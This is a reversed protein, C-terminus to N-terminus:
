LISNCGSFHPASADESVACSTKMSVRISSGDAVGKQIVTNLGQWAWTFLLAGGAVAAVVLSRTAHISTNM